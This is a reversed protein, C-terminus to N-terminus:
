YSNAWTSARPEHPTEKRIPHNSILPFQPFPPAKRPTKLPFKRNNRASCPPTSKNRFACSAKPLPIRWKPSASSPIYMRPASSTRKFDAAARHNLVRLGPRYFTSLPTVQLNPLYRAFELDKEWQTQEEEYDAITDTGGPDDEITNDIYDATEDTHTTLRIHNLYAEQTRDNQHRFKEDALFCKQVRELTRFQKQLDDIPKGARLAELIRNQVLALMAQFNAEGHAQHNIQIAAAFQGIAEVAITEQHHRTYFKCLASPCTTLDLGGEARPKALTAAVEKYPLKDCLNLILTQDEKPLRTFQNLRKM